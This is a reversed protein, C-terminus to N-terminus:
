ASADMFADFLAFQRGKEKVDGMFFCPWKPCFTHGFFTGKNEHRDAFALRPCLIHFAFNSKHIVRVLRREEFACAQQPFATSVLWGTRFFFLFGIFKHVLVGLVLAATLHFIPIVAAVLFIQLLVPNIHLLFQLRRHCRWFFSSRKAFPQALPHFPVLCVLSPFQLLLFSTKHWDLM